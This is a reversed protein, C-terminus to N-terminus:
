CAFVAPHFNTSLIVNVCFAQQICKISIQSNKLIGPSLPSLAMRVIPLRCTLFLLRSIIQPTSAADRGSGKM